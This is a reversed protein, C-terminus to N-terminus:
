LVGWPALCAVIRDRREELDERRKVPIFRSGDGHAPVVVFTTDLFHTVEGLIREFQIVTRGDVQKRVPYADLQPPDQFVGADILFTNTNFTEYGQDDIGRPWRLGELLRVTGDMQVPMGGRDSPSRRAVEVSVSRGQELHIGVLLPDLVAGLNDVNSVMLIRGDLDLFADLGGGRFSTLTDGHGMGSTSVSGGADRVLEGDRTVRPAVTQLFTYTHERAAPISALHELTAAHTAHSNMLYVPLDRCVSRIQSLKLDIFSRGEVVEVTGKVVGGFRTAMGGNLVIAGVEGNEIAATGRAVLRDREPGPDAPLVTFREVPPPALRSAEIVLERDWRGSVYDRWVREFGSPDFGMRLLEELDSGAIEM